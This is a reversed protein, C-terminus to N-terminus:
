GQLSVYAALYRVFDVMFHYGVAQEFSGKILLLAAPLSYLLSGIVIGFPDIGTHAFGHAIVSTLIAVVLARRPRQNTVPRLIAYCVTVLFLRAWIEEAIGPVIAYLPQWWRRIWTDQSQLNGLLNLLAAPVALVCAFLFGYLARAPEGELLSIRGLKTQQLLLAGAMFAPPILVLNAVAWSIDGNGLFLIGLASVLGAALGAWVVGGTLQKRWAITIGQGLLGCALLPSFGTGIMMGVLFAIGLGLFILFVRLWFGPRAGPFLDLDPLDDVAPKKRALFWILAVIFVFGAIGTVFDLAQSPFVMRGIGGGASLLWLCGLVAHALRRRFEM